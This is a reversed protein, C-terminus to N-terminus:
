LSERGARRTIFVIVHHHQIQRPIEATYEYGTGCDIIKDNVRVDTGAPLSLKLRARYKAQPEDQSVEATGSRIHFHCPVAKEDPRDPYSFTPSSPLNYGPSAEAKRIHYIDCAHNLFNSFGM